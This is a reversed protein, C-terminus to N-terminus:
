WIDGWGGWHVFFKSLIHGSVDMFGIRASAEVISIPNGVVRYGTAMLERSFCVQVPLVKIGGTGHPDTVLLKTIHTNGKCLTLFM